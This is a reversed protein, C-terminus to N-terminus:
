EESESEASEEEAGGDAAEEGEELAGEEPEVMKPSVVTVVTFNVDHPIEIGGSLPIDEVHISEGMELATVDIEIQEPINRPLCYVELERRVIQLIGGEDVGKPTGVTNVTVMTAIKQDMQVEFFDIHIYHAKVPDKQFEKIMVTKKYPQGDQKVELDILGRSFKPDIFMRELEHANVSLKINGTGTGYLIGPIRGERRLVRAAGKGVTERTNANLIAYDM